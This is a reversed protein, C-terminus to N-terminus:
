KVAKRRNFPIEFDQVHGSLHGPRDHKAMENLFLEMVEEAQILSNDSLICFNQIHICNRFKRLDELKKCLKNNSFFEYKAAADIYHSFKKYDKDRIEILNEKDLSGVGEQTYMSIRTNIFDYLIAECISAILIIKIKILSNNEEKGMKLNYLFKLMKLDKNIEDGLAFSGLFNVGVKFMKLRLGAM